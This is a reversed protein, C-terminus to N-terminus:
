EAMRAVHAAGAIGDKDRVLDGICYGLAEEFGLVCRLGSQTLQGARQIIWKFGTLTIACRAGHAQAIRAALPTSVITTVIVNKGDRPARELLYDCLLVGLENGTLARLGAPTTVAAALRDADPDNALVLDARTHAALALVRDLAGPEEPNPFRVTPFQPDPQAQEAVSELETVGARALSARAFREGVGHMATYAIRPMARKSPAPGLALELDRLYQEFLTDLSHLRGQAEAQARTLRPLALVQPSAEIRRAIEADHPANLQAGDEWYVKYGNYAAPNHSATIMVGGAAARARVAYALLPTPAIADFAHVAFGAGNAVARAEEAMQQSKHRGDFGICLGRAAANPVTAALQACLAATTQAVVRLNMRNDGAGILGRLGATGFGLRTEFRDRLEAASDPDAARALLADLEACTDPDPDDARFARARQLWAPDTM